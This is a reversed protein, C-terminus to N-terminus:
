HQGRGQMLMQLVQASIEKGTVTNDARVNFMMAKGGSEMAIWTGAIGAAQPANAMFAPRVVTYPKSRAGDPLTFSLVGGQISANKGTIDAPVGAAPALGQLAKQPNDGFLGGSKDPNQPPQQRPPNQAVTVPQKPMPGRGNMALRERIVNSPNQLAALTDLSVDQVSRAALTLTGSKIDSNKLKWYYIKGSGMNRIMSGNENFGMYTGQDPPNKFQVVPITGRDGYIWDIPADTNYSIEPLNPDRQQGHSIQAAAGPASASGPGGQQAPTCASVILVLAGVIASRAILNRLTM